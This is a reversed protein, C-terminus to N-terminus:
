GYCLSVFLIAFFGGGGCGRAGDGAPGLVFPCRRGGGISTSLEIWLAGGWLERVTEGGICEM